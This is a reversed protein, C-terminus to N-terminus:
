ARLPQPLWRTGATEREALAALESKKLKDWSRKSSANKAECIASVIQTRGVRSFYNAATPTFWQAMDLHLASALGNSYAVRRSAHKNL